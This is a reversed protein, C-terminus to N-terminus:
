ATLQLKTEFVEETVNDPRDDSYKGAFDFLAEARNSFRDISKDRRPVQALDKIEERNVDELAVKAQLLLGTVISVAVKIQPLHM